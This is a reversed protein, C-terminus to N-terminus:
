RKGTGEEAENQLESIEIQKTIVDAYQLTHRRVAGSTSEEIQFIHAYVGTLRVEVNELSRKPKTMHVSVHIVPQTRLLNALKERIVTEINM